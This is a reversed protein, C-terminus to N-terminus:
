LRSFRLPALHKMIKPPGVEIKYRFPYDGHTPFVVATLGLIRVALRLEDYSAAELQSPLGVHPLM